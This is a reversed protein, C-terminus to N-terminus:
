LDNGFVTRIKRIIRVPAHPLPNQSKLWDQSLLEAV